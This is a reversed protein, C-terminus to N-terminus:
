VTNLLEYILKLAWGMVRLGVGEWPGGEGLQIRSWLPNDYRGALILRKSNTTKMKM